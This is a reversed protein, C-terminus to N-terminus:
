PLLFTAAWLSFSPLYFIYQQFLKVSLDFTVNEHNGHWCSRNFVVQSKSPVVNLVTWLDGCVFFWAAKGKARKSGDCDALFQYSKVVCYQLYREREAKQKQKHKGMVDKKKKFFASLFFGDSLLSCVPRISSTALNWEFAPSSHFLCGGRGQM